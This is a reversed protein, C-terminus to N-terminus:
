RSSPSRRGPSGASGAADSSGAARASLRGSRLVQVFEEMLPSWAAAPRSLLTITRTVTLEPLDLTRLARGAPSQLASRPVLAVLDTAAILSLSWSANVDVEVAAHPVAIGADAFIADVRARAASAEGPLLWPMRAIEALTPRRRKLLPHGQRVVPLLADAGIAIGALDQPLDEYTPLVAADLQGQRVLEMLRDSAAVTLAARMGPRRPQLRALAPSLVTELVAITAGLRLVGARGARVQGAHHLAEDHERQIRQARAVFTEGFPTLLMGAGSREFLPLGLEAELRRVAKSLAAPTVDLHAAAQALQGRRAVELFYSLDRSALM